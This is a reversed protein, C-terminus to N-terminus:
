TIRSAVSYEIYIFIFNFLILYKIDFCAVSYKKIFDVQLTM